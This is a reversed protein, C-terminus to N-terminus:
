IKTPGLAERLKDTTVWRFLHGGWKNFKDLAEFVDDTQNRRNTHFDADIVYIQEDDEETRYLGHRLLVQSQDVDPIKLLTEVHWEEVDDALNCDGLIGIFSANLLESWPTDSLGVNHRDLVDIYRLGVRNYFAPAYTDKLIHEALQVEERFKEWQSYNHELVAIFEQTLSISRGRDEVSFHHEPVQPMPPIPFPAAALLDALEKPLGATPLGSPSKQEEYWPYTM